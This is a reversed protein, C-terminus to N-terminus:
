GLRRADVGAEKAADVEWGSGCIPVTDLRMVRCVGTWCCTATAPPPLSVQENISSDVLDRTPLLLSDRKHKM